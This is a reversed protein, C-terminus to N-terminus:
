TEEIHKIISAEQNDIHVRAAIAATKSDRANITSYIAEHETVLM